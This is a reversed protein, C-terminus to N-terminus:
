RSSAPCYDFFDLSEVYFVDPPQKGRVPSCRPTTTARSRRTISKSAATSDSSSAITREARRNGRPELGLRCPHRDDDAVVCRGWAGAAPVFAAVLLLLLSLTTGLIARPREM